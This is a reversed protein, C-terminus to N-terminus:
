YIGDIIRNAGEIDNIKVCDALCDYYVLEDLVDDTYEGNIYDWLMREESIHPPPLSFRKNM